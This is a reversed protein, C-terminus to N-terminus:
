PDWVAPAALPGLRFDPPSLYHGEALEVLPVTPLGEWCGKPPHRSEMASWAFQLRPHPRCLELGPARGILPSLLASSSPLPHEPGGLPGLSRSICKVRNCDNQPQRTWDRACSVENTRVFGQWSSGPILGDELHFSSLCLITLGEHLCHLLM